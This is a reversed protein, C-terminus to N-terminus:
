RPGAAAGDIAWAPPAAPDIDFVAFGLTSVVTAIVLAGVLNLVIGARAMEAISLRNSGFVVANPLTAVPLMFACSASLTAPITM